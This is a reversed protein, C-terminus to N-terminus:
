GCYEGSLIENLCVMKEPAKVVDNAAQCPVSFKWKSFAKQIANAEGSMQAQLHGTAKEPISFPFLNNSYSKKGTM